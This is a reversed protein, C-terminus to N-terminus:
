RDNNSEEPVILVVSKTSDKVAASQSVGFREIWLIEGNDELVAICDREEQPLKAENFLKKVSKTLGRGARCFCDGPRRNRFITSNSITAYDVANNFLLKNFKLRQNYEEISVIEIIFKGYSDTLIKSARFPIEWLHTESKKCNVRLVGDLISVQRGGPLTVAGSGQRLMSEILQVHVAELQVNGASQVALFIARGLVPQPLQALNKVLYGGPVESKALIQRAQGTLYDDEERLQMTMRLVADELSPNIQKLVPVIDLRVKNRTYERRLNSSDTVYSLGNEACYQEVEARTLTIFPRIISGRVPSIGCLGHVGTGRAFNLLITEISDSLTHATAIKANHKQALQEFFSYRVGRGCEELGKGMRAAEEKVNVRLVQLTIGNQGCYGRVFQEDRDSEEDRLCHNVHAAIVSSNNEKAFTSIFHLLAMSDAGGSVGVVVSCGYPLMNYQQMTEVIKRNM